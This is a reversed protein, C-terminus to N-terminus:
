HFLDEITQNTENRYWVVRNDHMWGLLIGSGPIKQGTGAHTNIGEALHGDVTPPEGSRETSDTMAIPLGGSTEELIVLEHTESLEIALRTLDPAFRFRGQGDPVPRFERADSKLNWTLWGRRWSAGDEEKVKVWTEYGVTEGDIWTIELHALFGDSKPVYAANPQGTRVTGDSLDVIALEADAGLNGKQDMLVAAREGDPSVALGYIAKPAKWVSTLQGTKLDLRFLENNRSLFFLHEPTFFPSIRLPLSWEDEKDLQLPHESWANEEPDYFRIADETFFAALCRDQDNDCVLRVVQSEPAEVTVSEGTEPAHFTLTPTFPPNAPEPPLSPDDVIPEPIPLGDDTKNSSCATAVGLLLIALLLLFGWKKM